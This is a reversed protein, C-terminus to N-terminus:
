PGEGPSVDCDLPQEVLYKLTGEVWVPTLSLFHGHLSLATVQGGQKWVLL